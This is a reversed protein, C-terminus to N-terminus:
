PKIVDVVRMTAPDVLVVQDALVTYRYARATPVQALADAPLQNLDVAPVAEGVTADLKENVKSKSKDLMVASFIAAKQAATLAPAQVPLASPEANMGLPGIHEIQGGPPGITQGKATCALATALLTLALLAKM